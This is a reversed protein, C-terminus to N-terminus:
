RIKNPTHENSHSATRALAYPISDIYWVSNIKHDVISLVINGNRDRLFHDTM